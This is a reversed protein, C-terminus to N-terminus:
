GAAADPAAARGFRFTSGDVWMRHLIVALKRAVAVTARKRGRRRAVALGWSKLSSFAKTRTLLATAAEYLTSRAMGDGARTIAGTVDKEGSQHKSPTLGFLAGVMKSSRFRGPNDVASKFTLATLVGVGPATMLLRCTADERAHARARRDLATMEARLTERAALMAQAVHELMPNGAVLERVRAAFRGRSVKGMKLGFGRLVGRLGLEIDLMKGLLLKRATLLARVEQASASKCHVPRFWGMRLLHAIGEADRRDTKVPMAKLAGKVQRTEMLVAEVGAQRLGAFLWQSLPGAELGVLTVPHGLGALFAALADPDSAVKTERLIRGTHDMVCVSSKELSVDIGVYHEM